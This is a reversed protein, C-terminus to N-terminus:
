SVAAPESVLGLQTMFAVQDYYVRHQRILGDRVEIIDAGRVRVQKGTPPITEDPLRLPGSHTGRATWENLVTDGAEATLDDSGKMDPFAGFFREWYELVAERGECAGAPDELRGDPAFLKGIAELDHANVAATYRDNLERASAVHTVEQDDFTM